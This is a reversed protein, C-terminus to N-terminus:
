DKHRNLSIIVILLIYYALIYEIEPKRVSFYGFPIKEAGKLAWFLTSILFWASEAATKAIYASLYGLTIMLIGSCMIFFLLPVAVLNALLMVPTIMSFNYAMIPTTGLWVALSVSIAKLFFSTTEKIFSNKKKIKEARFLRYFVPSISVISLVAVYSLIFGTDFVQAPKVLLMLFASLGLLNYVSIKRGALNSFALISFMTAARVTSPRAGTLCAYFALLIVCVIPSITLPVRTIKLLLLLIFYIIGVHLGSIALVHLTGTKSFMDRIDNPIASRNGLLITSMVQSYPEKLYKRIQSLLNRRLAYVSKKTRTFIDKKEGIKKKFFDKKVNLTVYIGRQALYKRYNFSSKWGFSIPKRLFGELIVIDGYQFFSTKEKLNVFVPGTIKQWTNKREIGMSSIIFATKQKKASVAPESAIVGQLIVKEQYYPILYKIHEQNLSEHILYRTGGLLFIFLCCLILFTRDNNSLFIVGFSLFILIIFIILPNADRFVGYAAALIGLIFILTVFLIYTNRM